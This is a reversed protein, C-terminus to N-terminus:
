GVPHGRRLAALFLLRCCSNFHLYFTTRGVNARDVIDRITIDDYSRENLLEIMARQLLRRTREVRRDTM